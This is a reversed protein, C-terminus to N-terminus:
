SHIVIKKLFQKIGPIDFLEKVSKIPSGEGIDTSIVIDIERKRSAERHFFREEYFEFQHGKTRYVCGWGKKGCREIEFPGEMLDYFGDEQIFEIDEKIYDDDEEYVDDYVALHITDEANRFQMGIDKTIPDIKIIFGNPLEFELHETTVKNKSIILM